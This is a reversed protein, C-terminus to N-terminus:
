PTGVATEAKFKPGFWKVAWYMLRKKWWSVGCAGLARYFVAHAEDSDMPKTVCLWDHVVAAKNHLGSKPFINWLGRPISAFDTPFGAPVEIVSGDDDVYVLPALLRWYEETEQRADLETLFLAM